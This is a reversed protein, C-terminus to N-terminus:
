YGTYVSYLGVSSNGSLENLADKHEAIIKEINGLSSIGYDCSGVYVGVVADDDDECTYVEYKGVSLDEFMDWDGATDVFIDVHEDDFYNEVTFADIGEDEAQSNLSEMFDDFCSDSAVYTNWTGVPDKEAMKLIMSSRSGDIAFGYVIFSSSSSNSVFGTRTKM